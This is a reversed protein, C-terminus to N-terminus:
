RFYKDLNVPKGPTIGQAEEFDRRDRENLEAEESSEFSQPTNSPEPTARGLRQRITEASPLMNNNEIHRLAVNTQRELDRMEGNTKSYSDVLKNWNEIKAALPLNKELKKKDYAFKRVKWGGVNVEPGQAVAGKTAKDMLIQNMGPKDNTGWHNYINQALVDTQERKYLMNDVLADAKAVMERPPKGAFNKLDDNIVNNAQDIRRQLRSITPDSEQLSDILKGGGSKNVSDAQFRKAAYQRQLSFLENEMTSRAQILDPRGTSASSVVSDWQNDNGILGVRAAEPLRSFNENAQQPTSGFSQFPQIPSGLGGGMAAAQKREWESMELKALSQIAYGANNPNSQAAMMLGAKQMNLIRQRAQEGQDMPQPNPIAAPVTDSVIDTSPTMFSADFGLSEALPNINSLAISPDEMAPAPAAAQPQGFNMNGFIADLQRGMREERQMKRLEGQYRLNQLDAQRSQMARSAARDEARSALTRQFQSEQQAMKKEELSLRAADQEKQYEFKQQDIKERKIDMAAAYGDRIVQNANSNIDRISQGAMKIGDSIGRQGDAMIAVFPHIGSINVPTGQLISM